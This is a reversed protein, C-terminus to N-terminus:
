LSYMQYSYAKYSYNIATLKLLIHTLETIITTLGFCAPTFYTIASIHMQQHQLFRFIDTQYKFSLVLYELDFVLKCSSFEASLWLFM